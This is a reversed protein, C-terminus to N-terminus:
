LVCELVLKHLKFKGVDEDWDGLKPHGFRLSVRNDKDAKSWLWYKLPVIIHFHIAVCRDHDGAKLM